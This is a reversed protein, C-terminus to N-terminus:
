GLTVEIDRDARCVAPKHRTTVPEIPQSLSM